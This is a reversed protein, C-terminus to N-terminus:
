AATRFARRIAHAIRTPDQLPGFHGLEEMIELESRPLNEHQAGLVRAGFSGPQGGGALFVPIAVEGLREFAGHSAGGEYVSAEDEGRCKLRVEGSDLDDFGYDVYARLSEPALADFPPKSAYNGFADDKTPFIERRRRAGEALNNEQSVRAPPFVVPEYCWLARFTSPRRQEALLLTAGGASHGVGFPRHLGLTDVVALADDAFRHWSFDGDAPSASDGHGRCDAGLCHFSDRLQEIVPLWTHAHFGTAHLFLVDPGDGGFDYTAIATGGAGDVFTPKM